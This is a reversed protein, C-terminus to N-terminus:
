RTPGHNRGPGRAPYMGCSRGPLGHIWASPSPCRGSRARTVGRGQRREAAGACCPRGHGSDDAGQDGEASRQDLRRRPLLNVPDERYAPPIACTMSPSATGRTTGHPRSPWTSFSYESPESSVSGLRSATWTNPASPVTIVAPLLYPARGAPSSVNSPTTTAIRSGAAMSRYSLRRAPAREAVKRHGLVLDRPGAAGLPSGPAVDAGDAHPRVLDLEIGASPSRALHDPQSTDRVRADRDQEDLFRRGPPSHPLFSGAATGGGQRLGHRATPPRPLRPVRSRRYLRDGAHTRASMATATNLPPPIVRLTPSMYRPAKLAILPAAPRRERDHAARSRRHLRPQEIVIAGEDHPSAERGHLQGKSAQWRGRPGAAKIGSARSAAARSAAGGPWHGDRGPGSMVGSWSPSSASICAALMSSRGQGARLGAGRRVEGVPLASLQRLWPCSRPQCPPHSSRDAPRVDSGPANCASWGPQGALRHGM